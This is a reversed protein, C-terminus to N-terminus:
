VDEPKNIECFDIPLGSDVGRAVKALNEYTQRAGNHTLMMKRYHEEMEQHKKAHRLLNDETFPGKEVNNWHRGEDYNSKLIPSSEHVTVKIGLGKAFGLWAEFCARQKFYEHDDIAMKIGYVSIEKAGLYVAYAVMYAPSSTLYHAGFLEDVESYPYVTINDGKLPFNDGVILRVGLDRLFEPYEKPHETLNDHVEFIRSVRKGQYDTIQNGLVWIEWSEDDFPAEMQSDKAAGVIAIKM